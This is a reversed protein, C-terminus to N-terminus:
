PSSTAWKRSLVAGEVVLKGAEEARLSRVVDGPTLMTSLIDM